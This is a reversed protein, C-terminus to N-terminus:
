DRERRLKEKLKLLNKITFKTPNVEYKYKSKIEDAVAQKTAAAEMLRQHNAAEITSDFSELDRAMRERAAAASTAKKKEQARMIAMPDKTKTLKINSMTFGQSVPAGKMFCMKRAVELPKHHTQMLHSLLSDANGCDCRCFAMPCLGNKVRHKRWKFETTFTAGTKKCKITRRVGAILEAEQTTKYHNNYLNDALEQASNFKVGTIPNIHEERAQRNRKAWEPEEYTKHTNKRMKYGGGGGGGGNRQGYDGRVKAKRDSKGVTTWAGSM